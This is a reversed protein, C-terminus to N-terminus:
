DSAAGTARTRVNRPTALLGTATSARGNGVLAMAELPVGLRSADANMQEALDQLTVLGDHGGGRNGQARLSRSLFYAFPGAGISVRPADLPTVNVLLDGQDLPLRERLTPGLPPAVVLTRHGNGTILTALPVADAARVSSPDYSPLLLSPADDVMRVYGTAFVVVEADSAHARVGATVERRSPNILLDTRYGSDQLVQAVRRADEESHKRPGAHAYDGVGIVLAWKRQALFAQRETTAKWTVSQPDGVSPPVADALVRLNRSAEPAYTRLKALTDAQAILTPTDVTSDTRLREALQAITAMNTLGATQSAPADNNAAYTRATAYDERSLAHLASLEEFVIKTDTSLSPAPARPALGAGAAVVENAFTMADLLVDCEGRCPARVSTWGSDGGREQMRVWDGAAEAIYHPADGTLRGVRRASLNARARLTRVEEALAPLRDVFSHPLVVDLLKFRDHTLEATLWQNGRSTPMDVRHAFRVREDLTPFAQAFLSLRVGDRARVLRGWLAISYDQDRTLREVKDFYGLDGSRAPAVGQQFNVVAFSRARATFLLERSLLYSLDDGVGLGDPDDLTFVAVRNRAQPFYLTLEDKLARADAALADLAVDANALQRTQRRSTSNGARDLQRDLKDLRRQLESLDEDSHAAEIDAILSRIEELRSLEEELSVDGIAHSPLATLLTVM